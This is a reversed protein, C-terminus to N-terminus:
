VIGEELLPMRFQLDPEPVRRGQQVEEIQVVHLRRPQLLGDNLTHSILTASGINTMNQAWKREYARITCFSYLYVCKGHAALSLKAVIM